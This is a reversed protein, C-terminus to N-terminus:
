VKEIEEKTSIYVAFNLLNIEANAVSDYEPRIPPEANRANRCALLHVATIASSAKVRHNEANLAFPRNVRSRGPLYRPEPLKRM